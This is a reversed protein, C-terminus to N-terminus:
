PQHSPNEIDIECQPYEQQLITAVVDRPAQGLTDSKGRVMVLKKYITIFGGGLPEVSKISPTSTFEERTMDLLQRHKFNNGDGRRIFYRYSEDSLTIKVLIYRHTGGESGFTRVTLAASFEM